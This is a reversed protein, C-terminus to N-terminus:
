HQTHSRKVWAMGCCLVAARLGDHAAGVGSKHALGEALRVVEKYSGSQYQGDKYLGAAKLRQIATASWVSLGAILGAIRIREPRNYSKWKM